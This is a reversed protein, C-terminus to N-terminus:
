SAKTAANSLTTSASAWVTNVSSGVGRMLTAAGLTVFALLLTYEILDQGEDNAWLQYITSKMDSQVSIMHLGLGKRRHKCDLGLAIGIIFCTGFLICPPLALAAQGHTGPSPVIYDNIDFLVDTANSAYVNIAGSTGSPVIAANAVVAGSPSNLTSVYPITKGTPWTSLYGLSGQPVVTFNLSYASATAPIGCASTPIPFTRTRLLPM